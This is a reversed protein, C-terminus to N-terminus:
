GPGVAGAVAGGDRKEEPPLPRSLAAQIAERAETRQGAALLAKALHYHRIGSEPGLQVARRLADIAEDLRGARYCVWGLTDLLPASRPHLTTARRALKLARDLQKGQQAYQYALNNLAVPLDPQLALTKEYAAVAADLDGGAESAMGLGLYGTAAAPDAETAKRFAGQAEGYQRLMMHTAGADLM